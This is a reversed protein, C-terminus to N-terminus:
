FAAWVQLSSQQCTGSGAGDPGQCCDFLPLMEVLDSHRALVSQPCLAPGLCALPLGLPSWPPPSSGLAWGQGSGRPVAGAEEIPVEGAEAEAQCKGHCKSCLFLTMFGFTLNACQRVSSSCDRWGSPATAIPNAYSTEGMGPTRAPPGVTRRETGM